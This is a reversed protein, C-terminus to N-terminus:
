RSHVTSKTFNWLSTTTRDAGWGLKAVLGEIGPQDHPRVAFCCTTPEVKQAAFGCTREHSALHLPSATVSGGEWECKHNLQLAFM